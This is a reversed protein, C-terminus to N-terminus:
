KCSDILINLISPPDSLLTLSYKLGKKGTKSSKYSEKHLRNLFPFDWNFHHLLFESFSVFFVNMVVKIWLVVPVASAASLTDAEAVLDAIKSTIYVAIQTYPFLCCTIEGAEFSRQGTCPKTFDQGLYAVKDAPRHELFIFDAMSHSWKILTHNNKESM